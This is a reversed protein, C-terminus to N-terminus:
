KGTKTAGPKPAEYKVWEPTAADAPLYVLDWPQTLSQPVFEGEAPGRVAYLVVLKGADRRVGVIEIRWGGTPKEGLAAFAAMEKAFDVTPATPVPAIHANAKAWTKAFSEADRCVVFEPARLGGNLQPPSRRVLSAAEGREEARVPEAPAADDKRCGALLLAAALAFATRIVM